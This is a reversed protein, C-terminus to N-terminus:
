SSDVCRKPQTHPVLEREAAQRLHNRDLNPMLLSLQAGHETLEAQATDAVNRDVVNPISTNAHAPLIAVVTATKRGALADGEVALHHPKEPRRVRAAAKAASVAGLEHVIM